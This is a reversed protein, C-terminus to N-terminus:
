KEKMQSSKVPTHFERPPNGARARRAPDADHAIDSRALNRARSILDAELDMLDAAGHRHM